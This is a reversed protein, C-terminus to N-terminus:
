RDIEKFPGVTVTELTTPSVPYREAECFTRVHRRIERSVKSAIRAPAASTFSLGHEPDAILEGVVAGGRHMRVEARLLTM